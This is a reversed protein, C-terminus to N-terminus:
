QLRQVVTPVGLNTEYVREADQWNLQAPHQETAAVFMRTINTLSNGADAGGEIPKHVEMYLDSASWGMKYPQDMILVPTGVPVQKFFREIDEPFMRICGHTVDMGVGTPNNTGHILYSGGPIALRMAFEGLPNDPGPKVVAPLVDGRDAHEKRVSAPPYWSPNKIKSVISTKGLPTKWDMKGISVPFTQVLPAEGPMPKPYYYIRHESVNVVIGVRPANPLIYRTPILLRRGAGPVWPDVGPNATTIEEYGVGYKRGLDLLTDEDRSTVYVLEGVVDDSAAPLPYTAAHSQLCALLCSCFVMLMLLASSHIQNKVYPGTKFRGLM